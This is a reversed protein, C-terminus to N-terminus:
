AAKIHRRITARSDAENATASSAPASTHAIHGGAYVGFCCGFLVGFSVGASTWVIRFADSGAPNFTSDLGLGCIFGLAAGYFAFVAVARSSLSLM